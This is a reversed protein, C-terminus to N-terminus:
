FFKFKRPLYCISPLIDILDTQKKYVNYLEGPSNNLENIFYDKASDKKEILVNLDGFYTSNIFIQVPEKQGKSEKEM